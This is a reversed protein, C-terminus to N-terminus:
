LRLYVCEELGEIGWRRLVCDNLRVPIDKCMHFALPPMVSRSNIDQFPFPLIKDVRTFYITITAPINDVYVGKCLIICTSPLVESALKGSVERTRYLQLAKENDDWIKKTSRVGPETKEIAEACGTRRM